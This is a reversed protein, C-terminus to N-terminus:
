ASGDSSSESHGGISFWRIVVGLGGELASSEPIFPSPLDRSLPLSAIGTRKLVVLDERLFNESFSFFLSFFSFGLTHVM